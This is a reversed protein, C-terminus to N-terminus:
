GPPLPPFLSLTKKQYLPSLHAKLDPHPKVLNKHPTASRVIASIKFKLTNGKLFGKSPDFTTSHTTFKLYGWENKNRTYTNTASCVTDGEETDAQNVLTIEHSVELKKGGSLASKQMGLWVSCWLGEVDETEGNPHFILSWEVGKKDIYKQCYRKRGEFWEPKVTFSVAFQVHKEEERENDM